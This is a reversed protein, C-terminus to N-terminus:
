KEKFIICNSKALAEALEELVEKESDYTGLGYAFQVQNIELWGSIFDETRKEDVTCIDNPDLETSLVKNLTRNISISDPRVIEGHSFTAPDVSLAIINGAILTDKIQKKM